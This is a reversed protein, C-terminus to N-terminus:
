SGTPVWNGHFGAPVRAPLHVRAVPEEAPASADLIVLESLDNAADHVYTLFWGDDEAADAARPVFVLEGCTRGPGFSISEGVGTRADYRVMNSGDFEVEDATTTLGMAWSYRHKRGVLREDVRPLEVARDDLQQETVRGTTRDVTWRWLSPIGDNPGLPQQDFMRPHRAVEIVIRDGDDYANFPHYVYCLEVEFWQVEAAEGGLPMVGLRAGYDPDWSYPFVSGAMATELSFTVPMDYLVLSTETISCDHTMPNGPVPIDVQHVVRGDTGVVTYDLVNPRAWFYNVAHLEGTRPDRKPHATFGHALTGDFDSFCVTELEDTLEVPRGGAEVIAFTRGAHGIVNTNASENGGNRDGPAPEEGLEEAVRTSRIWRNRYWDAKGDRLRVGHVMGNGTFWHHNLPDVPGIPNPGNRLYRGDLEDPIRGTVALDFATHEAQVPAYVGTLYPNTTTDSM